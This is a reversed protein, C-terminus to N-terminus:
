IYVPVKKLTKKKKQHPGNKFDKNFKNCYQKQKINQNKPRWAHPIKAGWGPISSAGGANSPSTEVVPSGPLDRFIYIKIRILKSAIERFHLGEHM